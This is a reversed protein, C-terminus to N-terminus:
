TEEGESATESCRRILTRTMSISRTRPRMPREIRSMGRYVPRPKERGPRRIAEAPVRGGTKFSVGAHFGVKRFSVGSGCELAQVVASCPPSLAERGTQPNRGSSAANQCNGWFGSDKGCFRPNTGGTGCPVVLAPEGYRKSVRLRHIEAWRLKDAPHKGRQDPRHGFGIRDVQGEVVPGRGAHRFEDEVPQGFVVRFGRKETQAFVGFLMRMKKPHDDLSAVPDAVVGVAVLFPPVHAEFAIQFVHVEGVSQQAGVQEPRGVAADRGHLRPPDAFPVVDHHPVHQAAVVALEDRGPRAQVVHRPM